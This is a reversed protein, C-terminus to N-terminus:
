YATAPSLHTQLQQPKPAKRWLLLKGVDRKNSFRERGNRAVPPFRSFSTFFEGKLVKVSM